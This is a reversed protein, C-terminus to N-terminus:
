HNERSTYQQMLASDIMDFLNKGVSKTSMLGTMYSSSADLVMKVNMIESCLEEPIIFRNTTFERGDLHSSDLSVIKELPHYKSFNRRVEGTLIHILKEDDLELLNHPLGFTDKVVELLNLENYIM